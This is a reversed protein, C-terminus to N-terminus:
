LPYWFVPNERWFTEFRFDRWGPHTQSMQEGTEQWAMRYMHKRCKEQKHFKILKM